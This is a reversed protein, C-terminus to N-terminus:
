WVLLCKRNCGPKLSENGSIEKCYKKLAQKTWMTPNSQLEESSTQKAQQTVHIGAPVCLMVCKMELPPVKYWMMSRPLACLFKKRKLM